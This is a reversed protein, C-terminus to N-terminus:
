GKRKRRLRRQAKKLKVLKRRLKQNAPFVKYDGGKSLIAFDKVGLDVGVYDRPKQPYTKYNEVDILFSAFFKGNQLSITVQKLKGTFRVKQRMRILSKLKEIRLKVDNRVDFKGVERLAFSEGVGKKKFRPFGPTEGAKVRRFFHKFAADLDDIANRSARSSVESLWPAQPKLVRQFYEYAAKKSWKEDKFHALLNNYAWRKAGMAKLLYERQSATPYLEIKQALLM